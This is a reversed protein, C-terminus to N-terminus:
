KAVDDMRGPVLTGNEMHSPTYISGATGGRTLATGALTAFALVAGLFLLLPWPGQELKPAEGGHEAVYRARYWAWAVYVAMPALFPVIYTFLIRGM